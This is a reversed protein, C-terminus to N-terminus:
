TGGPDRSPTISSKGSSQQTNLTPFKYLAATTQEAAIQKAGAVVEAKATKVVNNFSGFTQKAMIGKQLAGLFNGSALDNSIGSVADVLGGQGLISRTSGPKTIPSVERDYHAEEGFKPVFESPNQGSIAGEYYKAYEYKITMNNEMVGSSQSYDYTDHGFQEIIPRVLEYLVYNHQNFGFIQISKFFPVKGSSVSNAYSSSNLDVGTFGWYKEEGLSDAYITPEGYVKSTNNPDGFNYSYYAYWLKRTLNNNDDHFIINVPDYKIKTTINRWHGYQNLTDTTMQFKPLQINKVALGFNKDQPFLSASGVLKDNIDFYVHFLYKFKPAYAFADTTFTKSAHTYDKLYKNELFGAAASKFVQQFFGAM